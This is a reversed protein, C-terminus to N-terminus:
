PPGGRPLAFRFTAGEGPSAEAWVRGDHRKVIRAVLALGIGTGEFEEATHLRQFVGFLKDAHRMDFGAGNDRVFYASEAAGDVDAAGIEVVPDARRRTFKLANSLLNFFVQRLMAADGRAPPLSALRVEIARGTETKLLDELVSRALATMDIESRMLEKRGLRSFSLLDDILEGMRLCNSRIIKILRRGEEGLADAYRRELIDSFGDMKRLPARLDHSVSYAFAELEKNAAELEATRERVRRELEANLGRVAEEMNRRETIDRAAAYYVKERAFGAASWLLWRFSGDRCMIRNEWSLTGGSASRLERSRERAAVRDDPHVLDDFRMDLLEERPWGLATEWSASLERPFGDFGVVCMMDLSLSFFRSRQARMQALERRHERGEILRLRESQRRIQETKRFLDVFVAVKARLIEPVFPKFIYDVAGVAYGKDVHTEGKSVATMFIIPTHRSRERQRILAATEFGDMGPMRVDLLIVAFDQELIRKLAEPGSAASVIEHGLDKLVAELALLNERHDDVLLVRIGTEPPAAGQAGDARAGPDPAKPDAESRM